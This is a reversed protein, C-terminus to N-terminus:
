GFRGAVRHAQRDGENGAGYSNDTLVAKIKTADKLNPNTIDAYAKETVGTALTADNEDLGALGDGGPTTGLYEDISNYTSGDVNITLSEGFNSENGYATQTRKTADKATGIVNSNILISVTVAVLILMVIITIILAVLTIGNQSKQEKM